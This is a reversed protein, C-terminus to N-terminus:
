YEQAPVYQDGYTLDLNVVRRGREEAARLISALNTLKKELSQHSEATSPQGLGPWALRIREGAALYIELYEKSSVDVSAIRVQEGAKIRSCTDITEVANLTAQDVRAGPRLSNEACGTIVPYERSGSRLPFVYGDRDVSLSGLRGLRAVPAREVVNVFVTDPLQRHIVISRAIPTKALFNDRMRGMNVAFMNTGERLGTYERIHDRTIIQGEVHVVLRKITYRPNEWFLWAASKWILLALLGLVALTVLPLWAARPLAAGPGNRRDRPRTPANRSRGDGASDKRAWWM